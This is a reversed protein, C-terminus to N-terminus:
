IEQDYFEIYSYSLQSIKNRMNYSHGWPAIYHVPDIRM